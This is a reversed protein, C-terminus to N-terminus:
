GYIDRRGTVKRKFNKINDNSDDNKVRTEANADSMAESIEKPSVPSYLRKRFENAMERDFNGLSHGIHLFDTFIGFKDAAWRAVVFTEHVRHRYLFYRERDAPAVQGKCWDLLDSRLIEHQMPDYICPFLFM